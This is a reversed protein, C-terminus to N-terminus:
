NEHTRKKEAGVCVMGLVILFLGGIALVPIPWQNMGTQPLQPPTPETPPVTTPPETSPETPAPKLELKPSANVQYVYQDDSRGPVSVLFSNVKEYGEAADEQILLYLGLELNTFSIRGDNDIQAKTGSLKNKQTFEAIAQATRADGLQDLSAQCAAYGSTFRFSYDAGNEVHVDAVRYLTLSGGPVAKGEYTMTIDIVGKRDLDPIELAFATLSLAGLLLVVCLASLIRRKM